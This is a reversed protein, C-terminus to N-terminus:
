QVCSRINAHKLMETHTINPIFATFRCLLFDLAEFYNYPKISVQSVPKLM